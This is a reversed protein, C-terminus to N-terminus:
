TNKEKATQCNKEPDQHGEAESGAKQGHGKEERAQPYGYSAEERGLFQAEIM